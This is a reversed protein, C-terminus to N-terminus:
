WGLAEGKRKVADKLCSTMRVIENFLTTDNRSHWVCLFFVNALCIWLVTEMPQRTFIAWAIWSLCHALQVLSGAKYLGFPFMGLNVHRCVVQFIFIPALQADSLYVRWFMLCFGIVDSTSAITIKTRVASVSALGKNYLTYGLFGDFIMMAWMASQNYMFCASEDSGILPSSPGLLAMQAVYLWDSYAGITHPYVQWIDRLPRLLALAVLCDL